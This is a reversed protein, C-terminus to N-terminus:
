RIPKLSSGNHYTLHWSNTTTIIINVISDNAVYQKAYSQSEAKLSHMEVNEFFVTM